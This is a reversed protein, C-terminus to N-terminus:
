IRHFFSLSGVLEGDVRLPTSVADLTLGVLCGFACYAVRSLALPSPWCRHFGSSSTRRCDSM